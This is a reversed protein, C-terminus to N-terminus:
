HGDWEEDSAVDDRIYARAKGAGKMVERSLPDVGDKRAHMFWRELVRRLVKKPNLYMGVIPFWGQMEEIAGSFHEGSVRPENEPHKRMVLWSGDVADFEACLGKLMKRMAQTSQNVPHAAVESWLSQLRCVRAADDVGSALM